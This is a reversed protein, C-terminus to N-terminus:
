QWEPRNIRSRVKWYFVTTVVAFIGGLVLFVQQSNMEFVQKCAQFIGIGVAEFLAAMAGTTGIIRGRSEDPALKQVLAQLPVIFFGAFLGAIVIFTVVLWIKDPLSGLVFFCITLGIAGIPVLRPQIKHGSIWGATLSGVGIALGLPGLLYTGVQEENLPQGNISLVTTYDPLILTVMYGMLFFVSWLIALIFLPTGGHRMERLTSLLPTIPNFHLKGKPNAAPLKPMQKVAILGLIAVVLMVTGPLWLLGSPSTAEADPGRYAVYLFGAIVTAIIAALNTLMNILGNARSLHKSEVLEPILGYKAPSFFASQIGLLMMALLCLWFNELWFGALAVLAFFIEVKKVWVAVEQKSRRDAVQGAIVCFLFFPVVLCYAPYVQGGEGLMASWMGAAALGYTLVTKLLFDNTAGLFQTITLSLFGRSFMSRSTPADSM